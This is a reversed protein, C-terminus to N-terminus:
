EEQQVLFVAVPGVAVVTIPRLLVPSPSSAVTVCPPFACYAAIVADWVAVPVLLLVSAVGGSVAVALALLLRRSPHLQVDQTATKLLPEVPEREFPSAAVLPSM